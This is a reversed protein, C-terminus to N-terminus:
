DDAKHALSRGVLAALGGSDWVAGRPVRAIERGQRDVILSYPLGLVGLQRATDPGAALALRLHPFQDGVFRDIAPWGQQDNSVALVVLDKPYRAALRELSPMELRCPACWTAWMNVIVVRGKLEALTVPRGARDAVGLAPVPKGQFATIAPPSGPPQAVSPPAALILGSALAVLAGATARHPPRSV